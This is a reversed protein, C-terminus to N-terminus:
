ILRIIESLIYCFLFKAKRREEARNQVFRPLLKSHNQIWYLACKSDSRLTVLINELNLQKMVFQATRVGIFIALLELILITMGNTPAVRYKASILFTEAGQIECYMGASYAASSADTFIYLQMQM